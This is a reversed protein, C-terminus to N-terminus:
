FSESANMRSNVSRTRQSYMEELCSSESSNMRSNLGRNVIHLFKFLHMWFYWAFAVKRKTSGASSLTDIEVNMYLGPINHVIPAYEIM